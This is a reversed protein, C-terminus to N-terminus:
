KHPMLMYGQRQTNEIRWPCCAKRFTARIHRVAEKVEPPANTGAIATPKICKLLSAYSVLRGSSDHLTKLVNFDHNGNIALQKGSWYARLAESDVYLGKTKRGLKDNGRKSPGNPAMRTNGAKRKRRGRPSAKGKSKLASREVQEAFDATQGLAQATLMAQVRLTAVARQKESPRAGANAKGWWDEIDSSAMGEIADAVHDINRQLEQMMATRNQLLLFGRVQLWDVRIENTLPSIRHLRVNAPAGSRFSEELKPHLDLIAQALRRAKEAIPM